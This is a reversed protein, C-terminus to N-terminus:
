LQVETSTYPPQINVSTIEMISDFSTWREKGLLGDILSVSSCQVNALYGVLIYKNSGLYGLYTKM